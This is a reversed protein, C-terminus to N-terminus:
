DRGRSILLIRILQMVAAAAAAVYTLAAADLVKKAGALEEDTMVGGSTLARMARSSANFEVPLTVVTFAVAAIMLFIGLQILWPVAFGVYTLMFGIFIIPMGVASGFSSVPYMFHRLALPAYSNAHQIVHGVEHAAIGLAAVSRGHYVGESLRVTKSRPDYHDTMQGPICELSVDNVNASQMIWRAIDAGTTGSRVGVQSYKAYVSKVKAQAWLVILIAPIMLLDAPHFFFGFPMM